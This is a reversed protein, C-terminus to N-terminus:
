YDLMLNLMFGKTRNSKNGDSNSLVFDYLVFLSM